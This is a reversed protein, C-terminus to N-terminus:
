GKDKVCVGGWLLLLFFLVEDETVWDLRCCISSSPAIEVLSLFVSLAMLSATWSPTSEKKDDCKLPAFALVVNEDCDLGGHRVVM